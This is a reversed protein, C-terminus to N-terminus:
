GPPTLARRAGRTGQRRLLPLERRGAAARGEHISPAPGHGNKRRACDGGRARPHSGRFPEPGAPPGEWAYGAVRSVRGFGLSRRRRHGRGHRGLNQRAVHQRGSDPERVDPGLIGPPTKGRHFPDDGRGPVASSVRDGCIPSITTGSTTGLRTTTPSPTAESM